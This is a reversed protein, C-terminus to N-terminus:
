LSLSPLRIQIMVSDIRLEVQRSKGSSYQLAPINLDLSQPALGWHEASAL